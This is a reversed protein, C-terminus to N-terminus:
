VKKEDFQGLTSCSGASMSKRPGPFAQNGLQMQQQRDALEKAKREVEVRRQEIAVREARTTKNQVVLLMEESEFLMHVHGWQKIFDTGVVAGEVPFGPPAILFVDHSSKRAQGILTLDVEHTPTFTHGAVGTFQQPSKIGRLPVALRKAEALSIWNVRSGTDEKVKIYTNHGTPRVITRAICAVGHDIKCGEHCPCDTQRTVITTEETQLIDQNYFSQMKSQQNQQQAEVVNKLHQEFSHSDPIIGDDTFSALQKRRRNRLARQVQEETFQDLVSDSMTQIAPQHHQQSTEFSTKKVTRHTSFQHVRHHGPSPRRRKPTM